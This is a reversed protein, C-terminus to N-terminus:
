LKAGLVLKDGVMVARAAPIQLVDLANFFIRPNPKRIGAAASSLVFDFFKRAGLKDVLVQMNADDAGNSVLGMHYGRSHLIALTALADKEPIWHEQTVKYMEAMAHILFSESISNFGYAKLTGELIYRTTYEVLERERVEFYTSLRNAYDERFESGLNLGAENLVIMLRDLAKSFVRERDDNFYILTDGLDFLVADFHRDSM